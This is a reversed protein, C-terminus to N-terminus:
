DDDEDDGIDDKIVIPTVDLKIKENLLGYHKALSDAASKRDKLSAGKKIKEAKSTGKKVDTSLVVVEEEMQGRILASYFELIEVSDAIAQKKAEEDAEKKMRQYVQSFKPFKGGTNKIMKNVQNPINDDLMKSDPYAKKYAQVYSMGKLLCRLLTRQKLSLDGYDYKKESM